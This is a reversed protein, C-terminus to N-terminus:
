PRRGAHRATRLWLFIMVAMSGVSAAVWFSAVPAFDYRAVGGATTKFHEILWGSCMDQLGAGVYSAIGVVGLAAGASNSPVSDIALLGGLYCILAGISVGFAVMCAADVWFGAGHAGLFLALAVANLAGACVSPLFRNHAFWRDSVWGSAITGLVGAVAGLSILTGAEVRTYGKGVELYFMGWSNVAYRAVYMLASAAALLWVTPNKLADWQEPSVRPLKGGPATAAAASPQPPREHFFRRVVLAGALGAAAAGWFGWRWGFHTSVLAVAVFTLGEGINHSASWLGYYTGRETRNFWRSLAVICSPAGMSQLYGNLLWLLAFAAFGPAFGLVLNILATGALGISLLRNLNARDAVFGNVFKGVAYAYFLGSGVLGLQTETLVGEHVLPAKLASLSLRCVYYLSYGLTGSLFVAWRLRREEPGLPSM